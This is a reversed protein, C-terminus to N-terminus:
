LGKRISRKEGEMQLIKERKLIQIHLVIEQLACNCVTTYQYSVPMLRITSINKTTPSCYWFM